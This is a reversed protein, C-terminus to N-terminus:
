VHTRRSLQQHRTETTYTWIWVNSLLTNIGGTSNRYRLSSPLRRGALCQPSPAWCGQRRRKWGPEQGGTEAEPQHMFLTEFVHHSVFFLSTLHTTRSWTLVLLTMRQSKKAEIHDLQGSPLDLFAEQCIQYMLAKGCPGEEQQVREKHTAKPCNSKKVPKRNGFDPLLLVRLFSNGPAPTIAWLIRVSAARGCPGLVWM